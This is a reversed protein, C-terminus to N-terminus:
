LSTKFPSNIVIIHNFFHKKYVFMYIFMHVGVGIVTGREHQTHPPLLSRSIRHIIHTVYSKM